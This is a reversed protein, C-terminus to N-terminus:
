EILFITNKKIMKFFMLFKVIKPMQKYDLFSLKQLFTKEDLKRIYGFPDSIIVKNKDELGIVTSYHIVKKDNQFDNSVSYIFPVPLDNNLQRKITEIIREKNKISSTKIKHKKSIKNFLISFYLPPIGKTEVATFVNKLINNIIKFKSKDAIEKENISGDLFSINSAITSYGCSYPTLQKKTPFNKLIPM